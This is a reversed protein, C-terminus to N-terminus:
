SAARLASGSDGFGEKESTGAMKQDPTHPAFLDDRDLRNRIKVRQAGRDIRRSRLVIGNCAILQASQLRGDVAKRRTGTLSKDQPLDIAQGMALDGLAHAYRFAGDFIVESFGSARKGINKVAFM